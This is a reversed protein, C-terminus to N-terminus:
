TEANELERRAREVESAGRKITAAAHALEDKMEPIELMALLQGAKVRDGVDVNIRKLYGAVKAHVDVVQYPRFEGTLVIERILETPGVKAVAVITASDGSSGSAGKVDKANSTMSCGSLTSLLFACGPALLMFHSAM